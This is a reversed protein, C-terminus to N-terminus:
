EGDAAETTTPISAKAADAEAQSSHESVCKWEGKDHDYNVVAFIDPLRRAVQIRVVHPGFEPATEDAIYEAAEDPSSTPLSYDTNDADWLMLRGDTSEPLQAPPDIRVLLENIPRRLEHRHGAEFRVSANFHDHAMVLAPGLDYETRVVDGFVLGGQKSAAPIWRPASTETPTPNTM